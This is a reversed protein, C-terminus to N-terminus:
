AASLIIRHCQACSGEDHIWQWDAREVVWAVLELGLGHGSGAIANGVQKGRNYVEISEKTISIAVKGERTYRVANNILNSCLIELLVSPAFVSHDSTHTIDIAVNNRVALTRNDEIIQNVLALLDVSESKPLPTEGRGLWLLANTLRTMSKLSDELRVLAPQASNEVGHRSLLEANASAIALPTRLEHSAFRLFKQRHDIAEAERRVTAFTGDAIRQMESLALKPPGDPLSNISLSGFWDLLQKTNGAIKRGFALVLFLTSLMFLNAPILARNHVLADFEKVREIEHEALVLKQVVHLSEGDPLSRYLHLLYGINLLGIEDTEIVTFQGDALEEPLQSLIEAPVDQRTTYVVPVGNNGPQRKQEVYHESQLHQGSDVGAWADAVRNLRIESSFLVGSALNEEMLWTYGVVMTLTIGALTLGLAKRISMVNLAGGM